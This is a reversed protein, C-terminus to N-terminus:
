KCVKITNRRLTEYCSTSLPGTVPPTFAMAVAGGEALVALALLEPLPLEPFVLAPPLSAALPTSVTKAPASAM